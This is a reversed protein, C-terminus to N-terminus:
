SVKLLLFQKSKSLAQFSLKGNQALTECNRVFSLPYNRGMFKDSNTVFKFDILIYDIRYNELLHYLSTATHNEFLNIPIERLNPYPWIVPKHTYMATDFAYVVLTSGSSTEDNKIIETLELFEGPANFRRRYDPM